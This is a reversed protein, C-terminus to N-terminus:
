FRKIRRHCYPTKNTKQYYNQHYDEAKYFSSAPTLETAVKKGSKELLQILKEAAKKQEESLYFISSRYQTGRDPGQRMYQHPDHIEFFIMALEEFSIEEPDFIVEVAEAHGTEGTCVEEYTPDVVEGGAYGSTVKKVGKVDKLLHEVGWFCGGAFLAREDGKETFAPEFMLSLSNVCHRINKKTFGEGPFVHGLHADCRSCLIELRMGDPDEVRNIANEIEDDFSPWGSGSSIKDKSLFLPQDCRRCVYVGPEAHKDYDGTGPMETGKQCIIKEEQDSLDHFRKM